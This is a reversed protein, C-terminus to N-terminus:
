IYQGRGGAITGPSTGPLCGSPNNSGYITGFGDIQYKPGVAHGYTTEDWVMGHSTINGGEAVNAFGYRYEPTGWFQMTGGILINEGACSSSLATPSAGLAIYLAGAVGGATQGNKSAGVYGNCTDFVINDYNIKSYTMSCIGSGNAARLRLNRVRFYAHEFAFFANGQCAVTTDWMNLLNGQFIVDDASTQGVFLGTFAVEDAFTAGAEMQFTLAGSCRLDFERQCKNWAYQRTKWATAATLGDNSDSGTLSLYRITPTLIETRAM